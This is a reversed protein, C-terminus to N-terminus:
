PMLVLLFGIARLPVTLSPLSILRLVPPPSMLIIPASSPLWKNFKSAAVPLTSTCPFIPPVAGSKTTFTLAVFASNVPLIALLEPKLIAAVVLKPPLTVVLWPLILILPTRPNVFSATNLVPPPFIAKPPAISLISAARFRFRAAPLPLMVKLAGTPAVPCNAFTAIFFAPSTVALEVILACLKRTFLAPFILKNPFTVAEFAPFPPAISSKLGCPFTFALSKFVAPFVPPFIVTLAKFEIVAPFIVEKPVAPFAPLTNKSGIPSIWTSNILAWPPALPVPPSTVAIVPFKKRAVPEKGVVKEGVPTALMEVAPPVPPPFIAIVCAPPSPPVGMWGNTTPPAVILPVAAAIVVPCDLM